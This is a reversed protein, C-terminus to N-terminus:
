IYLWEVSNRKGQRQIWESIRGQVHQKSEFVSTEFVVRHDLRVTGKFSEVGSFVMRRVTVTFQTSAIPDRSRTFGHLGHRM